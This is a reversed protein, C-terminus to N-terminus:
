RDRELEEMISHTLCEAEYQMAKESDDSIPLLQTMIYDKVIAVIKETKDPDAEVTHFADILEIATVTEGYDGSLDDALQRIEHLTVNMSGCEQEKLYEKARFFITSKRNKLFAEREQVTKM